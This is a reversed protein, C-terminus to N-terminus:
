VTTSFDLVGLCSDFLSYSFFAKKVTDFNRRDFLYKIQRYILGAVLITFIIFIIISSFTLTNREFDFNQFQLITSNLINFFSTDIFSYLLSNAITYRSFEPTRIAESLNPIEQKKIM